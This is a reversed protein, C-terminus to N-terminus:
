EFEKTKKREISKPSAERGVSAFGNVAYVVLVIGAILGAASAIKSPGLVVIVVGAVLSLIPVILWLGAPRYPRAAQVIIGVQIIGVLILIAGITYIIAHVFFTPSCIMWIGFALAAAAALASSYKVAQFGPTADAPSKKFLEVCLLVLSPVAILIGIAIVVSDYLSQRDHFILLLIGIVLASLYAISYGKGKM